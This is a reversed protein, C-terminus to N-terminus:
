RPPDGSKDKDKVPPRSLRPPDGSKDKDKVPPKSLRPPDGSKDKDKVPPKHAVVAPADHNRTAAAASGATFAVAALTLVAVGTRRINM